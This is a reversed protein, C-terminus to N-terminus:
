RSPAVLLTPGHTNLLEQCQDRAALLYLTAIKISMAHYDQQGILNWYFQRGLRWPPEFGSYDELSLRYELFRSAIVNEWEAQQIATAGQEGLHKQFETKMGSVIRQAVTAPTSREIALTAGFMLAVVIEGVYHEDPSDGGFDLNDVFRRMSLDDESEMGSRLSEYVMAGLEEPHLQKRFLKLRRGNEQAPFLYVLRQMHELPPSFLLSDWQKLFCFTTYNYCM